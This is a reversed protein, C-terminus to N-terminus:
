DAHQQEELKRKALARRKENRRDAKAWIPIMALAAGGADPAHVYRHWTGLDQGNHGWV